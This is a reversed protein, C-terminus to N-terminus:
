TYIIFKLWSGESLFLLWPTAFKISSFVRCHQDRHCISGKNRSDSQSLIDNVEFCVWTKCPLNSM